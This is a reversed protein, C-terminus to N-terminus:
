TLFVACCNATTVREVSLKWCYLSRSRCLAPSYSRECIATVPSVRRRITWWCEMLSSLVALSANEGSVCTVSMRAAWACSWRISSTLAARRPFRGRSTHYSREWSSCVLQSRNESSVLAFIRALAEAFPSFFAGLPCRDAGLTRKSLRGCCGVRGLLVVSERLAYRVVMIEAKVDCNSLM